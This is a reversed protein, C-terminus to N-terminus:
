HCKFGWCRGKCEFHNRCPDGRSGDRCKHKMCYTDKECDINLVCYDGVDGSGPYHYDHKDDYVCVHHKCDGDRGGSHCDRNRSCPDGEDGNYCVHKHCYYDKKCDDASDCSDGEGGKDGGGGSSPKSPNSHKYTCYHHKCEGQGKNGTVCQSDKECPNGEHGNWCKWHLCYYGHKCQKDYDCSDGYGGKSCEHKICRFSSKCDWHAACKDGKNGKYCKFDLCYGPYCDHQSYCEKGYLGRAERRTSEELAYREEESKTELEDMDAKPDPIKTVDALSGIDEQL